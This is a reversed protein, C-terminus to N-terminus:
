RSVDGGMLLFGVLMQLVIGLVISTVFHLARKQGPIALALPLIQYLFVLGIIGGALAVLGGIGPILAGVIGALWAPIMAFTAAAFARAFDRKGDFVGAMLNIIFAFLAVGFVAM